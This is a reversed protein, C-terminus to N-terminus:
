FYINWATLVIIVTKVTVTQLGSILGLKAKLILRDYPLFSLSGAGSSVSLCQIGGDLLKQCASKCTLSLGTHKRQAAWARLSDATFVLSIGAM